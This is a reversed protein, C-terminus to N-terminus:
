THFVLHGDRIVTQYQAPYSSLGSNPPSEQTFHPHPPTSSEWVRDPATGDGHWTKAEPNPIPGPTEGPSHGGCSQTRNNPNVGTHPNTTPEPVPHHVRACTNTGPFSPENTQTNISPEHPDELPTGTARTARPTTAPPRKRGNTGTPEVGQPAEVDPRDVM